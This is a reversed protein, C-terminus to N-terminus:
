GASGTGAGLLGLLLGDSSLASLADGNELLLSGFDMAPEISGIGNPVIVPQMAVGVGSPNVVTAGGGCVGVLLYVGNDVQMTTTESANNGVVNVAPTGVRVGNGDNLVMDVLGGWDGTQYAVLGKIAAAGDLLAPTCITSDVIFGAANPNTITFQVNGGDYDGQTLTLGPPDFDGVANTSVEPGASVIGPVALASGGAVAAAAVLGVGVKKIRNLRM